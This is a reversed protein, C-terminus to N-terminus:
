PCCKCKGYILYRIFSSSTWWTQNSFSKLNVEVTELNSQRSEVFRSDHTTLNRHMSKLVFHRLFESYSFTHCSRLDYKLLIKVIENETLDVNYLQVLGTFLLSLLNFWLLVCLIATRNIMTLLSTTKTANNKCPVLVKHHFSFNTLPIVHTSIVKILHCLPQFFCFYIYFNLIKLSVVYNSQFCSQSFLVKYISLLVKYRYKKVLILLWQM